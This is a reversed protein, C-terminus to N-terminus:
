KISKKPKKEIEGVEKHTRKAKIKQQVIPKTKGSVKKEKIPSTSALKKLDSFLEKGKKKEKEEINMANKFISNNQINNENEEKIKDIEIDENKEEKKNENILGEKKLDDRIGSLKNQYADIDFSFANLDENKNSKNLSEEDNENNKNKNKKNTTPPEQIYQVITGGKDFNQKQIIESISLKYELYNALENKKLERCMKIFIVKNRNKFIYDFLVIVQSDLGEIALNQMKGIIKKDHATKQKKIESEDKLSLTLKYDPLLINNDRLKRIENYKMCRKEDFSIFFYSKQFENEPDDTILNWTKEIPHNEPRPEIKEGKLEIGYIENEEVGICWFNKNENIYKNGM